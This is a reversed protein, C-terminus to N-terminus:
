RRRSSSKGGGTANKARGGAALPRSVYSGAVIACDVCLTVGEAPWRFGGDDPEGCGDCTFPESVIQVREDTM